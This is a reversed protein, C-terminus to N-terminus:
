IVAILHTFSLMAEKPPFGSSIVMNPSDAPDRDTHMIKAIGSVAPRNLCAKISDPDHTPGHPGLVASSPKIVDFFKKLERLTVEREARRVKGTERRMAEERQFREGAM